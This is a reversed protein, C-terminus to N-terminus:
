GNDIKSLIELENLGSEVQVPKSKLFGIPSCLQQWPWNFSSDHWTSEVLCSSLWALFLVTNEFMPRLSPMFHQLISRTKQM